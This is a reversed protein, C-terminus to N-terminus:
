FFLACLFCSLFYDAFARARRNHRESLSVVDEVCESRRDMEELLLELFDIINAFIIRRYLRLKDKDFGDAYLHQIQKMFTTKGTQGAGQLCLSFTPFSDADGSLFFFFILLFFFQVLIFSYLIFMFSISSSSFFLPSFLSSLLSHLSQGLLLIKITSQLDRAEKRIAADIKQAEIDDERMPEGAGGCCSM